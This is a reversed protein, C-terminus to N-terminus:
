PRPADPASAAASSAPIASAGLRKRLMAEYLNPPQIAGPPILEIWKGTPSREAAGRLNVGVMNMVDSFEKPWDVTARGRINWFTEGEAGHFGRNGGGSSSFLRKCEGADLDTFLNEFPSWRHHDMCLNVAKGRSFVCGVASQVTVDHIFQTDIQFNQCLCDQGGFTIGHHGTQGNQKSARAPDAGLHIGDLTCFAGNVYPGSDANWIRLNRLWCHAAGSNIEIPNYGLEKFHGAYPAAPFEFGLEEIGVDTVAPAFATLAPKWALRADFRLGRDLTITNGSVSVIRFIKRTKWNNLGSTNGAQGRYLYTLMTKQADDIITLVVEDGKKFAPKDLMLQRAGRKAELTIATSAGGRSSRGGISILGGGWSWNTTPTGGDNVAPRPNLVDGPKRFILVTKEPGAGRVVINSRRIELLGNLIYRGAPIFLIQNEARDLATKFAATDDTLGDGKAGFSTISVQQKPIRFPEEGRRYGAFSFDPLRSEPTWKEGAAGWLESTAARASSFCSALSLLLLCRILSNMSM